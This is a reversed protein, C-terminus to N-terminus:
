AASATKLLNRYKSKQRKASTLHYHLGYLNCGTEYVKGNRSRFLNQPFVSEMPTCRRRYLNQGFHAM